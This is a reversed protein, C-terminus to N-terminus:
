NRIGHFDPLFERIYDQLEQSVEFKKFLKEDDWEETFDLWPVLELEGSDAHTNNKTLSLCFRAFDTLCYNIFNQRELDSGFKFSNKITNKRIGINNTPNKLMITYFCGTGLSKNESSPTGIIDASQCYYENELVSTGNQINQVNICHDSISTHMNCYTEIKNSFDKVFEFWKSGFKTIDYISKSSYVEDFLTVTADGNFNMDFHSIAIPCNLRIDFIKNANFLEVSHLHSNIKDRFDNYLKYSRKNDLIWISPHIVIFEDAVDIIENLIKIDVNKNYPPNSFVLDFKMPENYM